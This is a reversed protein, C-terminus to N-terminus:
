SRIPSENPQNTTNERPNEVCLVMDDAFLPLKTGEKGFWRDKKKKKEKKKRREM